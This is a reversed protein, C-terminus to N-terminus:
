LKFRTVLNNLDVALRSLESSAAQTQNAGTTSQVSLDRINVLNRDVERAVQAQEEAASAIVLNRENIESIASNITDLSQGAGRAISLTSEARETSNRMSDVAHETGSQISGIMREIESTSQQTRHALARVEDAVVAFGRGAEGARAAEIAANLALLNTQDALGRIVDLVKGIDRSENALDGILSATGQVDSSMREIASVTERVLDRGDGASTTASKSAESTSVANRAVEEVASTMENVATAAQEIENNQQTLGRAGEETVSNLEEAASALQHASGSISQLTDRLKEQMTVMAQLLRGAEDSGDVTIPRTLNGEAIEEAARLANAIPQTISRILRWAFLLTLASALVLLGVVLNFARRYQAAADDDAVTAYHSNIEVLQNLVANIKEASDMLDTNLLQQMAELQNNHSLEILQSELQRHHSLLTGYQEYALREEPSSILKLYQARAEEIKQNRQDIADLTQQQAQPERNLLLRYAQVRQRLSLQTFEDVSKISPITDQSMRETASRIKGMQNLAFVGLFLMLCGILAFGLFARPAINLSRLSM